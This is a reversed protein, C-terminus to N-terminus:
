SMTERILPAVVPARRVSQASRVTQASPAPLTVSGKPLFKYVRWAYRARAERCREGRLKTCSANYAGVAEWTLGHKAIKEALISAGVDINTCADYLMNETIGARALGPLNGSNIQMTGIDYTGTVHVHSRNVAKPNLSSEARAVAYLLQPSVQHRAGSQEWCARAPAVTVCLFLATAGLATRIRM